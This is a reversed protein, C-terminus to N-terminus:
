TELEEDDSNGMEPKDMEDLAVSNVTLKALVEVRLVTSKKTYASSSHEGV